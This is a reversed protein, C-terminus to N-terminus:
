APGALPPAQLRSLVQPLLGLWLAPTVASRFAWRWPRLAMLAAGAAAAGLVLRFPHQRAIPQLALEAADGAVLLLVRAPQRAWWLRALELLLSIAPTAALSGWWGSGTPAATPHRSEAGHGGNSGNAQGTHRGHQSDTQRKNGSGGQANGPDSLAHRLQERSRALRDLAELTALAPEALGASQGSM